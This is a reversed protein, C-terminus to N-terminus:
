AAPGEAPHAARRQGAPHAARSQGAPHAARVRAQQIPPEVRAQQISPSAGLARPLTFPPLPPFPSSSVPIFLLSLSAKEWCLCCEATLLRQTDTNKDPHRREQRPARAHAQVIGQCHLARHDFGGGQSDRRVDPPHLMSVMSSAQAPRGEPAERDGVNPGRVPVQSYGQQARACPPPPPCSPM